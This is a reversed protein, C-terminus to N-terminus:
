LNSIRGMSSMQGKAPLRFLMAYNARSVEKVVSPWARILKWVYEEWVLHTWAPALHVFMLECEKLVKKEVKNTLIRGDGCVAVVKEGEDERWRSVEKMWETDPTGRPLYDVLARVQNNSDFIDLIRALNEPVNEDTFFIVGSAQRPVM